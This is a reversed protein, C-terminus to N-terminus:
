GVQHWEGLNLKYQSTAIAAGTGLDYVFEIFGDNMYLGMFDGMGDMRHGNYVILGDASNPKFTIEMDLWTLATDALGRYRLHSSGNFSPM